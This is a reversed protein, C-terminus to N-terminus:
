TKLGPIEKAKCVSGPYASSFWTKMRQQSIIGLDSKWTLIMLVTLLHKSPYARKKFLIM